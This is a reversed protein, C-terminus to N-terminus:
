EIYIGPKLPLAARKKGGLDPAEEDYSGMIEIRNAKVSKVIYNSFTKLVTYEDFEEVHRILEKLEDSLQQSLTIIKKAQIAAVKKNLGQAVLTEIIRRMSDRRIGEVILKRLISYAFTPTVYLVIRQPVKKLVKTIERIDDIVIDVYKIALESTFDRGIASPWKENVVLTTKGLKHWLEEAIHPTFPTILKVWNEVIDKIIKCPKDVMSLYKEIDSKMNYFTEIAAERIRISELLKTIKEIRKSIVSCLWKDPILECKDRTDSTYLNEIFSMLKALFETAAYTATSTFNLDQNVEAITILALRVADVGYMDITRILPITNGKSKSMKEGEVLVWGHAIIGRPWKSRPFIAVHNFIFFTLHNPILDKGSVRWDLPYWYDFEKRIIELKWKDIGLKNALEEIDGKGLMVFDWFEPVLKELPIQFERIKHIITYFAMYITSDSLSEIVWSKEWPLPTGLGRTRACAKRQLWEITAEFQARAEEPVIKMYSLAERAKEKWESDGYNIFWQNELLKVVVESGCRCYVPKNIIEYIVSYTKLKKLLEKTRERAEKVSKSAIHKRVFEIVESNKMHEKVVEVIDDKMIGASFEASYIEKTADELLEKESQSKIGRKIVADRAPISSYGPVSIISRPELLQAIKSAETYKRSKKLEMLAAYDFPAHAPVSMVIGTATSPDVFDGPLIPIWEGTIPNRVEMGILESGKIKERIEIRIQYKLRDVAKLALIWSDGDINTVVYEEQPNIWINTVGFVTEPRLTATPFAIGNKDRFLIVTFEELEPEKDDKTDHMGVPMSHAPCWGVPHTGQEIYGLERLKLFQWEIFKQFEPDISTFERRWDIALGYRELAKKSVIHFYRALFEPNNMKKMIEEPVGYVEKFLWQLFKDGSAISEAMVLIPTGTYHFAMPFLANYGQM